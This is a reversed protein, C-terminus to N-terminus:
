IGGSGRRTRGPDDAIAFCAASDVMEWTAGWPEILGYRAPARPISLQSMVVVFLPLSTYVIWNAASIGAFATLM